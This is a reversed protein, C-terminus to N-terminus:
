DEPLKVVHDSTVASPFGYRGSNAHSIEGATIARVDMLQWLFSKGTATTNTGSALAEGGYPPDVGFVTGNTFSIAPNNEAILWFWVSLLDNQTVARDSIQVASNTGSTPVTIFHFPLHKRNDRALVEFQINGFGVNWDTAADWTIRNTTNAPVENGLNAGSGEVFNTMRILGTLTNIGNTFGLLYVDVNPNNADKVTYDIDVFSKGSRQAASIIIPQPIESSTVSFGTSTYVRKLKVLGRQTGMTLLSHSTLLAYMDGNQTFGQGDSRLEPFQFDVHNIRDKLLNSSFTDTSFRLSGASDFFLLKTFGSSGGNHTGISLLGDPTAVIQRGGSIASQTTFLFSSVFEGSPKFFQIKTQFTDTDSIHAVAVNGNHALGIVLPYGFISQGPATPGWKRLFTGNTSLVLVQTGNAIYVQNSRDIALASTQPSGFVGQNPGVYDPVSFGADGSGSGVWERLKSGDVPSFVQIKSTELVYINTQSDSAIGKVTGVTGFEMIFNLNTDLVAIKNTSGIYIRNDQAIHLCRFNGPVYEGEFVWNDQPMQQAQGCHIAVLLGALVLLLRLTKM